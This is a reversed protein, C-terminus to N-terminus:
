HRWQHELRGASAVLIDTCMDFAHCTVCSKSASVPAESPPVGRAYGKWPTHTDAARARFGDGRMVCQTLWLNGNHAGFYTAHDKTSDGILRLYVDHLWLNAKQLEVFDEFIDLVCQRDSQRPPQLSTHHSLTTCNGQLCTKNM